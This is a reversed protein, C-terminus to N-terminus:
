ESKNGFLDMLYCLANDTCQGFQYGHKMDYNSLIKHVVENRDSLSLKGLCYQRHVNECERWTEFFDQDENSSKNLEFYKDIISLVSNDNLYLKTCIENYFLGYCYHGSGVIYEPSM